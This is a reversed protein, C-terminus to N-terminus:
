AMFLVFSVKVTDGYAAQAAGSLLGAEEKPGPLISLIISLAAPIAPMLWMPIPAEHGHIDPDKPKGLFTEWILLGAQALLLAGALVAGWRFFEALIPPLTPHITVSLLTEKALFGFMPPLGAMSLAALLAVVFTFPMVKALGGLRRMDRTGTEHDVIGAVLFLASKYLAHALIGIVLAKYAIALDQGILIVLVGLQSITSYALLGKM